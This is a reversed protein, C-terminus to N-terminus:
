IGGKMRDMGAKPSASGAPVTPADMVDGPNRQENKDMAKDTRQQAGKPTAQPAM